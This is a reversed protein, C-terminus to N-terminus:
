MKGVAELVEAAQQDTSAALDRWVLRGDKFLYAQRKALNALTPVGFAETVKGDPDALLRYPLKQETAFSKQNVVTDRSVGIVKIGKTTLSTYADRLSCAQKTCGPTNAKPYFFVFTYGTASEAAIDVDKGDHDSATVAPAPAGLEIEAGTSSIGLFTLLGM